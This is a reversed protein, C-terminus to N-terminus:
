RLYKRVREIMAEEAELWFRQLRDMTVVAFAEAVLEAPRECESRIADEDYGAERLHRTLMREFRSFDAPQGAVDQSVRVWEALADDAIFPIGSVPTADELAASIETIADRDERDRRDLEYQMARDLVNSRPDDDIASLPGFHPRYIATIFVEDLVLHTLYGAIFAAVAADLGAPRALGPHERFMREVSDQDDLDALRFFHTVERDHKTIVRIDPATAGLYFSGRDADIEPLALRGAVTRARVLHSGLSPM